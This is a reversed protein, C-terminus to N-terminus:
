ELEITGPADESVHDVHLIVPDSSTYTGRSTYLDPSM